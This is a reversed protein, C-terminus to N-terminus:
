IVTDYIKSKVNKYLLRSSLLNRIFHECANGSNLGRTIADNIYSQHRAISQLNIVEPVTEFFKNVVKIRHNERCELSSFNIYLCCVYTVMEKKVLSSVLSLKLAPLIYFLHRYQLGTRDYRCKM